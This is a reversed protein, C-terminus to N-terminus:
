RGSQREEWWVEQLSIGDDRLPSVSCGGSSMCTAVDM